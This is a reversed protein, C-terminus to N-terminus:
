TKILSSVKSKDVRDNSSRNLNKMEVLFSLLYIGHVQVLNEAKGLLVETGQSYKGFAQWKIKKKMIESVM